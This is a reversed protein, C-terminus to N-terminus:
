PTSGDGEPAVAHMWELIAVAEDDTITITRPERDADRNRAWAFREMREVATVFDRETSMAHFRRHKDDGTVSRTNKM